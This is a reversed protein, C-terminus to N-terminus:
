HAHEASGKALEAKLVFSNAAAYAEGPQLGSLIEIFEADGAGTEVERPQFVEGEGRVFVVTHGEVTQLATRRVAVAAQRTDLVIRGEAFLGPRWAGDPNELAVRIMGSQTEAAALPSVYAIRRQLPAAAGDPQLLVAQGTRVKAFDRRYVTFDVWVTGLDAVVFAPKQESVYEGAAVSRGVLTGALPSKMEYTALSQNSEVVALTEGREVRDGLRRRVERVVGAFRPTVQATREQDTGVTGTVRLVDHLSAPGAQEIGVGVAALRAAPLHL